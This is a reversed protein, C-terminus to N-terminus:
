EMSNEKGNNKEKPKLIHHIDMLHNHRMDQHAIKLEVDKSYRETDAKLRQINAETEEMHLDALIKTKELDLKKMEIDHSKANEISQNQIKQAELKNKMVLPNNMMEQMQAMQNMKKQQELEAQWQDVMQKIMDIGRIEINDLLVGLGKTNIFEAFLPSAQMLAIIQSLAKSKQVQFSPGAEVKVNLANEEFDFSIGNPQNIPVYSKSGDYDQVPITRPTVYYKPILNIIIQAVRQMGQLFGVIYPMAANNSQSAAEVIAIGSLQNDNIGLSADYSGLVNQILNDTTTFGQLVEPPMPAQQVPVIPDPIQMDPNEEYFANVVVNSPKQIDKIAAMFEEEKPLAEKKIIFKHQVINEIASALQIGAYNKLRQAGKAHYVYPRTIQRINGNKPTKVIISNGDVFILPFFNYDTEEYEIVTNEIIRYRCIIERETWRPKGVIGPAPLFSGSANWKEIFDKYDDYPMVKGNVLKVIRFRKFKKEYYDCVMVIPTKDNIYSWNFGSFDRSFSLTDVDVDPYEEEFRDKEMPILEFCYRGDGKHSERALIDWGCLTPDFARLFKIEQDFSMHNKYDTVVKFVSFGGSLLDKYVEYKVHHNKSDFFIHRLHQELVKLMIGMNQMDDPNDVSVEISPEQKSFEGLLRSIYAELVNFELQPRSLSALLALEDSTLSSEFVFRRFENFRDYNEKFYDHSQRVNKKIRALQDQYRQAVEM